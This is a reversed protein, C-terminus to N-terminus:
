AARRRPAREAGDVGFRHRRRTWKVFRRLTLAIGTYVLFVAGLSVIGAITQGVIGLVEGTHAFRLISRLRRGPTGASFPQWRVEDGTARDLQLEARKQPQGGMGADIAFTAPADDRTPLTLTISRWGPVRATAREVLPDLGELRPSRADPRAGSQVPRDAPAAAAGAPRPGGAAPAAPPRPAPPTEGVARYVLNSAWPYSIVVGSAVVVVLPAWSWLGIVNHWNFDRAKSRLGRRFLTV